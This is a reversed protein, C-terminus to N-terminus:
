SPRTLDAEPVDRLLEGSGTRVDYTDPGIWPSHAKVIRVRDGPWAAGSTRQISRIVEVTENEYYATVGAGYRDDAVRRHGKRRTV